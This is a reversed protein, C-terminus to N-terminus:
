GAERPRRGLAKALRDPSAPGPSPRLPGAVPGAGPRPALLSKAVTSVVTSALRAVVVEMGPM